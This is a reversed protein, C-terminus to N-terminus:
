IFFGALWYAVVQWGSSDFLFAETIGEAMLPLGVFFYVPHVRKVSYKEWLMAVLVMSAPIIGGFIIEWYLIPPFYHRFRLFAAWIISIMALLILRKHVEPRKRYVIAASVLTLFIIPTTFMGVLSSVATHGVGAAVDRKLIYIGLVITSVSVGVALGLGVFGIKRHIRLNKTRVLVSQAVLFITWLFLLTGHFYIIAPATFTGQFSPLFFTKWFGILVVALAICAATLFYRSRPAPLYIDRTEM